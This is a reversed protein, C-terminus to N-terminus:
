AQKGLQAGTVRARGGYDRCSILHQWRTDSQFLQLVQDSQDYGHEFLLWGGARLYDPARSILRRYFYLGDPGGDLALKPEHLRVEPMLTQIQDTAIYPPNATILDYPEPQAPPLLDAQIMRGTRQMGHRALNDSACACAVADIDVLDLRCSGGQQRWTHALSIGVCGSGTFLDLLRLSHDVPLGNDMRYQTLENLATEVLVESDARPILVGPRVAFDLGCFITTGALYALPVRACRQDAMSLVTRCDTVDVTTEPRTLLQQRTLGLCANLLEAAEFRPSEFGSSRFINSLHDYLQRTTM